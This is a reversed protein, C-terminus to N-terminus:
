CGFGVGTHKASPRDVRFTTHALFSTEFHLLNLYVLEIITEDAIVLFSIYIM